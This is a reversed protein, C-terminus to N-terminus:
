RREPKGLTSVVPPVTTTPPAGGAAGPDVPTQPVVLSGAWPPSDAPATAADEPGRQWLIEQNPSVDPRDARTVLFLIIEKKNFYALAGAGLVIALIILLIRKM